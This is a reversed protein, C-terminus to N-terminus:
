TQYFAAETRAINFRYPSKRRRKKAIPPSEDSDAEDADPRGHRNRAAQNDPQDSDSLNSSDAEFNVWRRPPKEHGRARRVANEIRDRAKWQWSRECEVIRETWQVRRGEIHADFATIYEELQKYHHQIKLLGNKLGKPREFQIPQDVKNM